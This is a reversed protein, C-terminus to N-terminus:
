NDCLRTNFCKVWCKSTCTHTFSIRWLTKHQFYCGETVPGRFAKGGRIKWVGLFNQIGRMNSNKGTGGLKWINGQIMRLQGRMIRKPPPAFIESYSWFCCHGRIFKSGKTREKGESWSQISERILNIGHPPIGGVSTRDLNRISIYDYNRFMLGFEFKM